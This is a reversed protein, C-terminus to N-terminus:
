ADIPAVAPQSMIAIRQRMDKLTPPSYEPTM